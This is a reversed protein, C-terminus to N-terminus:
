LEWQFRHHLSFKGAGAQFRTSGRVDLGYIHCLVYIPFLLLLRFNLERFIIILNFEIFCGVM